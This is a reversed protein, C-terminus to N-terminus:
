GSLIERATARIAPWARLGASFDRWADRWYALVEDSSLNGPPGKLEVSHFDRIGSAQLQQMLKQLYGSLPPPTGASPQLARNIKELWDIRQQTWHGATLEILRERPSDALDAYLMALWENRRETSRAGCSGIVSTVHDNLFHDLTFPLSFGRHSEAWSRAPLPLHALAFPLDAALSQPYLFGTMAGFNRDQGRFLPYYPPLYDRNDFGTLQSMNARPEFVPRSRGLWCNREQSANEIDDVLGALQARAEPRVWALWENSASGPDGYSGCQSILIPANGDLRRAFGPSAFEFADPGPGPRGLAALSAGLTHGLVQLHGRVPCRPEGAAASPWDAQSAYFHCGRQRSSFEVGETREPPAIAACVVDDDFVVLRRGVSHLQALNRAIGTTVEGTRDARDLLFRIAPANEPLRDVLSAVLRSADDPTFHSVPGFGRDDLDTRASDITRRNAAISAVDRSDDIVVLREIVEPDANARISDLLRRLADPRDATIVTAIAPDGPGAGSGDSSESRPAIRAGIEAASLMLGGDIVSQLIQRIEGERGRANPGALHAIHEDMTRFADCYSIANFVEGPLPMQAGSRRNRAVITGDPLDHGALDDIAFRDEM